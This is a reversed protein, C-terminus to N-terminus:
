VTELWAAREGSLEKGLAERGAAGPEATASEM